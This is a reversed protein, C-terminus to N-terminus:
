SCGAAYANAFCQFDNATLQPTGTSGDCNATTSGAAYANAFCQFDNATLVPTGTSGDCNAYCGGVYCSGGLRIGYSGGTGGLNATWGAVPNAAGPGNPAWEPQFAGGPNTNNWILQALSDQPDKNYQSVALLYEGNATVFQSTLVSQLVGPADDDMVVGNGATNFLFLQTDFTALGVTSAGFNAEDCIRIKFMDCDDVGLNGTIGILTGSGSV